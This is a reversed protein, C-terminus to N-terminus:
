LFRNMREDLSSEVLISKALKEDYFSIKGAHLLLKDIGDKALELDKDYAGYKKDAVIPHGASQCHVRIQHTRGTELKIELLSFDNKLYTVNLIHTVAQKGERRDVKVIREGGKTETRNLPLDICKVDEDWKGHVIAYYIKDVKREKFLDFFSVISTHKKALIICGSTEKDLRHVLDLRRAQPRLQRLREVLGSNVGSGGHVAMGSPKDVIMYDDNEHLIRSELYDLHNQSVKIIEDREELMFPPVRVIDGASVRSTQKVRKKNVRLDGKRIWRYILPKPLGSFKSILFNDIRQASIDSEVEIHQVGAM